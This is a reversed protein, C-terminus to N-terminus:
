KPTARRSALSKTPSCARPRPQRRSPSLPGFPLKVLASVIEGSQVHLLPSAALVTDDAGMLEIVYTGPDVARFAFLGTSDTVQSDVVRGFRADRLRVVVNPLAANTADMANGQIITFVNSRTGPLLGPGTTRVSTGARVPVRSGAAQGTQQASVPASAVALAVLAAPLGTCRM